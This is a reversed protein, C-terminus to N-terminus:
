NADILWLGDILKKKGFGMNGEPFAVIAFHFYGGYIIIQLRDKYFIIASPHLQRIIAPLDISESNATLDIYIEGSDFKLDPRNSKYNARNALIERCAKLLEVHDARNVVLDKESQVDHRLRYIPFLWFILIFGLLCILALFGIYFM